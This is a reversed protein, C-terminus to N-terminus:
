QGGFGSPVDCGTKRGTQSIAMNQQQEIGPYVLALWNMSQCAPPLLNISGFLDRKLFGSTCSERNSYIERKWVMYPQLEYKIRIARRSLNGNFNSVLGTRQNM